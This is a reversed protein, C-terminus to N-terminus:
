RLADTGRTCRVSRGPGGSMSALVREADNATIIEKALLSRLLKEERGFAGALRYHALPQAHPKSCNPIPRFLRELAAIKAGADQIDGYHKALM